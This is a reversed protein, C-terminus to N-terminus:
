EKVGTKMTVSQREAEVRFGHSAALSENEMLMTRIDGEIKSVLVTKTVKVADPVNFEAFRLVKEEDDVKLAPKVTTFRVTLYPNTWTKAALTGDNKRPLNDFAFAGLQAAYQNRLSDCKSRHRRVMTEINKVIAEHEALKANMEIEAQLMQRSIFLADDETNILVPWADVFVPGAYEGTETDYFDDGIRVVEM